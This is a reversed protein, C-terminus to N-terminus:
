DCRCHTFFPNHPRVFNDGSKFQLTMLSLQIASFLGGNPYKGKVCPRTQSTFSMGIWPVQRYWAKYLNIVRRKAEGKDQSLIPKVQKIRTILSRSAM